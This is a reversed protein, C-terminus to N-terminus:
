DPPGDDYRVGAVTLVGRPQKKMCSRILAALALSKQQLNEQDAINASVRDLFALDEKTYFIGKFTRQIFDPSKKRAAILRKLAPGDIIVSSNEVTAKAFVTPFALFYSAISVEGIVKLAKCIGPVASVTIEMTSKPVLGPGCKSCVIAYEGVIEGCSCQRVGVQEDM